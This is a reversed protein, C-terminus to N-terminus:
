AVPLGTWGIHDHFGRARSGTQLEGHRDETGTAYQDQLTGYGCCMREGESGEDDVFDCDNARATTAKRGGQLRKCLMTDRDRGQNVLDIRQNFSEGRHRM